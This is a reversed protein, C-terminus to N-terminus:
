REVSSQKAGRAGVALDHCVRPLGTRAGSLATKSLEAGVVRAHRCGAYAGKRLSLRMFNALAM